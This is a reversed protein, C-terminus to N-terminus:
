NKKKKKVRGSRKYVYFVNSVQGVKQTIVQGNTDSVPEWQNPIMKDPEYTSIFIKLNPMLETDLLTEQIKVHPKTQIRKLCTDYMYAVTTATMNKAATENKRWSEELSKFVIKDHHQTTEKNNWRGGNMEVGWVTFHKFNKLVEALVNGSGAGIDLFTEKDTLVGQYQLNTILKSVNGKTVEDHGIQKEFDWNKQEKQKGETKQKKVTRGFLPDEDTTPPNKTSM